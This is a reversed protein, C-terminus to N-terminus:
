PKRKKRGREEYGQDVRDLFGLVESVARQLQPPVGAIAGGGAPRQPVRAEQELPIEDLRVIFPREEM